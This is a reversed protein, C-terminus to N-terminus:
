AGADGRDALLDLDADAVRRGREVRDVDGSADQGVSPAGLLGVVARSLLWALATVRAAVAVWYLVPHGGDAPALAGSYYWGTVALHVVEAAQWVLLPGWRPVAFAAFPLLVLGAAPPLWPSVLLAGGALLLAVSAVTRVDAPGRGWRPGAARLTLWAVLAAWGVWLLASVVTVATASFTRGTVQTLLLWVSGGDVARVWWAFEAGGDLLRPAALLLWTALAAVVTHLVQRAPFAETDGAGSGAEGSRRAAVVLLAVLVTLAPLVTAGAVGFAVGALVPRGRAWAWLGVALSGLAVVHWSTAWTLAVMPALAVVAGDWPRRPDTRTSAVVGALLVLSMLVATLVAGTQVREAATAPVLQVLESVLRAVLAPAPPLPEDFTRDPTALGAFGWDNWCMRAYSPGPRLWADDACAKKTLLGLVWTMTGLAVLVRTPGWWRHPLGHRGAPGGAFESLAAVTPDERSPAARM